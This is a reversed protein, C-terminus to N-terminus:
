EPQIGKKIAQFDVKLPFSQQTCIQNLIMVPNKSLAKMKKLVDRSFSVSGKKKSNSNDITRQDDKADRFHDKKAMSPDSRKYPEKCNKENFEIYGKEEKRRGEAEMRASKPGMEGEPSKIRKVVRSLIGTAGLAETEEERREHRKGICDRSDREERRAGERRGNLLPLGERDDILSSLMNQLSPM